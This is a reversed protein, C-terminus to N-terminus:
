AAERSPGHTRRKIFEEVDLLQIRPVSRSGCALNVYPILRRSILNYVASRSLRLKAAVENVTLFRDETGQHQM